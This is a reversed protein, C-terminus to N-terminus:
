AAVLEVHVILGDDVDMRPADGTEFRQQAPLMRRLSEDRRLAEDFDGFFGAEDNGDPLEHEVADAAVDALPALLARVEHRDAHVHEATCSSRVLSRSSMWCAM